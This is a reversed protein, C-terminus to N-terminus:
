GQKLKQLRRLFRIRRLSAEDLADNSREYQDDMPDIRKDRFKSDEPGFGGQMMEDVKSSREGNKEARQKMEKEIRSQYNVKFQQQQESTLKVWVQEQYVVADPGKSMLEQMRARDKESVGKGEKRAAQTKKRLTSLEKGYTQRYEKQAEEYVKILMRIEVKQDQTLDISQLTAIWLKQKNGRYVKKGTIREREKAMDENTVAEDQMSPGALLDVPPPEAVAFGGIFTACLLTTILFTHKPM